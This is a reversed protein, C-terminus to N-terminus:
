TETMGTSPARRRKPGHALSEAAPSEPWGRAPAATYSAHALSGQFLAIQSAAFHLKLVLRALIFAQTALVALWMSVGTGPVGPAVVAWLLVLAAFTATNLAYLGLTRGPRRATFRLAAALAGLMSRRDEVVARIKAYDFVLSGLALLLGFLAYLALRVAFAEREVGIDRTLDPYWTRFLYPHVYAFLWGYYAGMAAALRLFRFFFVGSAAFFGHARTSRQRAYRDLIGGLLFAWTTLYTAAAAALAVAARRADAVGSINDLTAAFGVIAPVFTAGVGQAGAAFEEWWDYNVHDAAAEAEVSAGLHARLQGRLTLALPLALLLTLAYVGAVIAPADAVRKWGSWWCQLM